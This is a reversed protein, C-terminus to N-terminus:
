TMKEGQQYCIATSYDPLEPVYLRLSDTLSLRGEQELLLALAAVFQKGVSGLDFISETKLPVGRELEAMGYARKYVLEGAKIRAFVGGPSDDRDWTSILANIAEIPLKM